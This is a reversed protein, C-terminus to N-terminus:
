QVEEKFVVRLVSGNQIQPYDCLSLPGLLKTDELYLDQISIVISEFDLETRNCAQYIVWEVNVGAKVDEELTQGDPLQIILHIDQGAIDDSEEHATKRHEEERGEIHLNFPSAM